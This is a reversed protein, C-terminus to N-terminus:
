GLLRNLETQFDENPLTALKKDRGLLSETIEPGFWEPVNFSKAADESDFEVEARILGQHTGTYIKLSIGSDLLYSDRTIGAIAKEKLTIFEESSIERKVKESSLESITEKREYEYVDGKRQIREEVADSISLFWREYPIAQKGVILEVAVAPNVIWKREIEM